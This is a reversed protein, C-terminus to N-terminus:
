RGAPAAAAASGGAVSVHITIPEDDGLALGLSQMAAALRERLTADSFSFQRHSRKCVLAFSRGDPEATRLGYLARGEDVWERELLRASELERLVRYVTARSTGNGQEMLRTYMDDAGLRLTPLRLFLGLIALRAATPRLRAQTLMQSLARGPNPSPVSSPRFAPQPRTSPLTQM